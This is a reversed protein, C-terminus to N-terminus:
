KRKDTWIGGGSFRSGQYPAHPCLFHDDCVDIGKERLMKKLALVTRRSWNSTTFLMVKGVKSKDLKEVYNKLESAMINAYPAGGLFLVNVRETLEPSFANDILSQFRQANENVERMFEDYKRQLEEDLVRQNKLYEEM